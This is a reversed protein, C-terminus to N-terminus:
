SVAGVGERLERSTVAPVGTSSSPFPCFHVGKEPCPSRIFLSGLRVIFRFLRFLLSVFDPGPPSAPGGRPPAHPSHTAAAREGRAEKCVRPRAPLRRQAWVHVFLCLLCGAHPSHEVLLLQVSQPGAVGGVRPGVREHLLLQHLHGAQARPDDADPELVLTALVLLFRDEHLLQLLLLM